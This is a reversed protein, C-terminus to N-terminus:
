VSFAELSLLSSPSRWSSSLVARGSFGIAKLVALEGVRERVSIAM